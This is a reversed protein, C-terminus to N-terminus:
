GNNENEKQRKEMADIDLSLMQNIDLLVARVGENFAHQRENTDFTTKEGYCKQVLAKYVRKGAESEFVTKYDLQLQRLQDYQSM